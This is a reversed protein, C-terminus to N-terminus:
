NAIIFLKMLSEQEGLSLYMIIARMRRKEWVGSHQPLSCRSSTLHHFADDQPWPGFGTSAPPVPLCVWLWTSSLVWQWCGHFHASTACVWGTHLTLGNPHPRERFEWTWTGDGFEGPYAVVRHLVTILIRQKGSLLQLYSAGSFFSLDSTSVLWWTSRQRKITKSSM